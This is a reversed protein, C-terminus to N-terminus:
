CLRFPQDHWSDIQWAHAHADLSSCSPVWEKYIPSLWAVVSVQEISSVSSINTKPYDDFWNSGLRALVMTARWVTAARKAAKTVHWM